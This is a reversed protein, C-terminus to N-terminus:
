HNNITILECSHSLCSNVFCELLMGYDDSDVSSELIRSARTVNGGATYARIRLHPYTDGKCEFLYGIAESVMGESLLRLVALEFISEFQILRRDTINPPVTGHDINWIMVALDICDLHFSKCYQRALTADGPPTAVDLLIYLIILQQSLSDPYAKAKLLCSIDAAPYHFPVKDVFELGRILHDLALGFNERKDSIDEYRSALENSPFVFRDDDLADCDMAADTLHPLLETDMLWHTTKMIENHINATCYLYSIDDNSGDTETSLTEIVKVLVSFCKCLLNAYSLVAPHFEDGFLLRDILNNKETVLEEVTKRIWEIMNELSLQYGAVVCSEAVGMLVSQLGHQLCVSLIFYQMETLGQIVGGVLSSGPESAGGLIPVLGVCQLESLYHQPNSMVAPGHTLLETIVQSRLGELQFIGVEENSIINFSMSLSELFSRSEVQFLVSKDVSVLGTSCNLICGHDMSVEFQILFPCTKRGLKNTDSWGPHLPMQSNYWGNLDFIAVMGRGEEEVGRCMFMVLTSDIPPTSVHSTGKVLPLVRMITSSNVMVASTNHYPWMTHEFRRNCGEIVQYLVTNPYDTKKKFGMQYMTVSPSSGFVHQAKPGNRSVWVYLFNKPDNEPEQVAFHTVPTPLRRILLPLSYLLTSDLLSYLQFGGFSYGVLLGAALPFHSIATVS